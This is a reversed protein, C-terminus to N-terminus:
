EAFVSGNEEQKLLKAMCRSHMIPTDPFLSFPFLSYVGPSNTQECIHSDVFIIPFSRQTLHFKYFHISTLSSATSLSEWLITYHMHQNHYRLMGMCCFRIIVSLTHIFCCCQWSLIYGLLTIKFNRYRIFETRRQNLSKSM